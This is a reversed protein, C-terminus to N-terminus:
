NNVYTSNQHFNQEADSLHESTYVHMHICIQIIYINNLVYKIYKVM